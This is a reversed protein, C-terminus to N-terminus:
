PEQFFSLVPRNLEGAHTLIVAHGGGQIVAPKAGSIREHLTGAFRMPTLLDDDGVVILTPTAITVRQGVRVQPM